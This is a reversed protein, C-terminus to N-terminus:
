VSDVRIVGGSYIDRKCAMKVATRVDMGCDIATIALAGGSGIAAPELGDTFCEWVSGDDEFGLKFMRGDPKLCLASCDANTARTGNIYSDILKPADGTCGAIWFTHGQEKIRKVAKDTVIRDCQTIRSDFGVKGRYFVITTM